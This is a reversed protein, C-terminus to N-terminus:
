AGFSLITRTSRTVLAPSIRTIPYTKACCIIPRITWVASENYRDTMSVKRRTISFLMSSSKSEPVTCRKSWTEFNM